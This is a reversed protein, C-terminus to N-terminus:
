KGWSCNNLCGSSERKIEQFVIHGKVHIQVFLFRIAFVLHPVGSFIDQKAESCPKCPAPAQTNPASLSAQRRRVGPRACNENVRSPKPVQVLPIVVQSGRTATSPNPTYLAQGLTQSHSKRHQHCALCEACCRHIRSGQIIIQIVTLSSKIHFACQLIKTFVFILM